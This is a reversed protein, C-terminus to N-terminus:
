KVDVVLLTLDDDPEGDRYATLDDHMNQLFDTPRLHCHKKIMDHLGNKGLMERKQNETEVYGDTYCVLRDGSSAEIISENNDGLIKPGFGVPPLHPMISDLRNEKGRWLYLEPHGANTVTLTEMELDLLIVAMTAFMHTQGISKIIFRNLMDVVNSPPRRDSLLQKLRSHLLNATLAASVGHGTVDYLAVAFEKESYKQVTLYDGGIAIMPEFRFHMSFYPTEIEQPLLCQQITAAHKLDEDLQLQQEKVKKEMLSRKLVREVVKMLYPLDIPKTIFDAAGNKMADIAYEMTGFATMIVVPIDLELKVIEQLMQLGNMKPMKFDSVIIDPKNSKVIELAELGNGAEVVDFGKFVVFDHLNERIEMEDDVILMRKQNKDM